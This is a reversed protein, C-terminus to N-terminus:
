TFRLCLRLIEEWYSEGAPAHIIGAHPLHQHHLIKFDSDHTILIRRAMRAFELQEEDTAFELGEEASITVNRPM